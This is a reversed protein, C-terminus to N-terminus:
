PTSARCFLRALASCTRAAGPWRFAGSRQAMNAALDNNTFIFPALAITM